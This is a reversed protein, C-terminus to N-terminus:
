APEVEAAEAEAEAEAAEDDVPLAAPVATGV